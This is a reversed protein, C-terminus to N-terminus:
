GRHALWTFQLVKEVPPFSAHQFIDVHKMQVDFPTPYLQKVWLRAVPCRVNKRLFGAM